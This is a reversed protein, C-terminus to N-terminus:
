LNNARSAQQRRRVALVLAIGLMLMVVVLGALAILKQMGHFLVATAGFAATLFYLFLVAGRHSFGVDLLRFHLHKRDASRFPSRHEIFLRRVIVWAVDLIPIGMILLATAIKGGSIIALSGLLFGTLLSGGEGLFVKAPHWNFLLFGACAGALILALNATDAQLVPPRVSLAYVVLSGIVTIGSVLGDLGDLFKTTYTMGLVWVLTFLDAWLTLHYPIGHWDFLAVNVTDLPITGGFPNTVLKIGVGSVIVALTALLPFVFQWKPSLRFRDDLYGGIMLICGGAFLGWLYKTFIGTGTLIGARNGLLAIVSFFGIFIAIGGLLAVPRAHIKRDPAQEPRDVIGAKLAFARVLVTVLATLLAAIAFLVVPNM